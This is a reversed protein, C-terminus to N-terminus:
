NVVECDCLVKCYVKGVQIKLLESLFVIYCLFEYQSFKECIFNKLEIIFEENFECNSIVFVKVVQGWIEDFVGIVGVEIVDDYKFMIYEIEVVSMIWGVLIIVDDVCGCYYFYGEDDLKVCDKIIEWYDKRWLM